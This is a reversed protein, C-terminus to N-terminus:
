EAALTLFREARASSHEPGQGEYGHPLLMVMNSREGWKARASSIFQDFIVQGANAFDGFQAEWIVLTKPAKVSYGYEFGLVAAESLPSNHIDFAAKADELGHMPSYTDTTEIDHLLLHRHAFTGRETDQGTLRIPIGDQLISAYALAEGVAWDAQEKNTFTDHRKTLIKELKKFSNFDEPRKLLDKNLSHLIDKPVATEIDSLGTRLAQPVPLPEPNENVSEEMDDYIGQLKNFVAEKMEEFTNEGILGNKQLKKAYITACTPHQDIKQYLKPQTARPEDMENHGYRRYGVLDILVDKQFKQRYDYAL